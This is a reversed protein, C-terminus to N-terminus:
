ALQAVYSFRDKFFLSLSVSLCAPLPLSESQLSQIYLM